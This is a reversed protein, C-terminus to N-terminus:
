SQFRIEQCNQRKQWSYQLYPSQVPWPSEFPQKPVNYGSIFLMLKNFYIQPLLRLHSQRTQTLFNKPNPTCHLGWFGRAAQETRSFGARWFRVFRFGKEQLRIAADRFGLMKFLCLATFATLPAAATDECIHFRCSGRKLPLRQFPLFLVM